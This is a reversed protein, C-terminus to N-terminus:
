FVGRKFWVLSSSVKRSDCLSHVGGKFWVFSSQSRRAVTAVSLWELDWKIFTIARGVSPKEFGEQLM